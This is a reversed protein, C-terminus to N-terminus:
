RRPGKLKSVAVLAIRLAEATEEAVDLLRDKEAIAADKERVLNELRWIEGLRGQAVQCWRTAKEADTEPVEGVASM